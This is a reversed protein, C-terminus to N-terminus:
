TTKPKLKGEAALKARHARRRKCVVSLRELRGLEYDIETELEPILSIHIREPRFGPWKPCRENLRNWLPAFAPWDEGYMLRTRCSFLYLMFHRLSAEYGDDVFKPMEDTWFFSFSQLHLSRTARTDHVLVAFYKAFHEVDDLTYDHTRM